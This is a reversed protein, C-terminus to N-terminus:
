GQDAANSDVECEHAEVLLNIIEADRRLTRCDWDGLLVGKSAAFARFREWADKDGSMFRMVNYASMLAYQVPCPAIASDM